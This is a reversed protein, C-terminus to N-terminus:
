ITLFISMGLVYALLLTYRYTFVISVCDSRFRDFYDICDAILCDIIIEFFFKALHAVHKNGILIFITVFAGNHKSPSTLILILMVYAYSCTYTLVKSLESDLFPFGSLFKFFSCILSVSFKYILTHKNLFHVFSM